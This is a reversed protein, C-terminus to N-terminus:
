VKRRILVYTQWELVLASFKSVIVHMSTSPNRRGPPGHIVYFKHGLAKQIADRQEDNLKNKLEETM